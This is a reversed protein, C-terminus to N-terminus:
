NECEMWVDNVFLEVLIDDRKNEKFRIRDIGSIVGIFDKLKDKYLDVTNVKIVSGVSGDSKIITVDILEGFDDDFVSLISNCIDVFRKSNVLNIKCKKGSEKEYQKIKEFMLREIKSM